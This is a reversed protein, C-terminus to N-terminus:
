DKFGRKKDIHEKVTDLHCRQPKCFCGITVDKFLLKQETQNIVLNKDRDNVVKKFYEEYLDCVKDRDQHDNIIFPNGLPSGRGLYFDANRVKHKNVVTLKFM